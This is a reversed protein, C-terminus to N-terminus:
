LPTTPMHVGERRELDRLAFQSTGSIVDQGKIKLNMRKPLIKCTIDLLLLNPLKPANNLMCYRYRVFSSASM